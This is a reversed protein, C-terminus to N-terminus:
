TKLHLNLSEIIGDGIEQAVRPDSYLGGNLNVTIQSGSGGSGIRHYPIVQEGGHAQILQPSGIPGPVTGGLAFSGAVDDSGFGLASGAKKALNKLADYAKGILDVVYQVKNAISDFVSAVTDRLYNTVVEFAPKLATFISQLWTFFGVAREIKATIVDGIIQGFFAGVQILDDFMEKVLQLIPTFIKAMQEVLFSIANWLGLFVAGLAEIVPMLLNTFMLWLEKAAAWLQKISLWTEDLGGGLYILGAALGAVAAIVLGVPSILLTFGAIVPTLLLGLTGVVAVLGAIAAAAIGIKAALEPNKEVWAQVKAVIPGVIDLMKEMVPLLAEGIADKTNQLSASLQQYREATSLTARGTEEIEQRGQKVVKSIIAQKQEAATLENTAKGISKAYQEYAEGVKLTIGLNDLIMPSGRGLGTVLDDFAQKTDLGMAKGKKRAIEMITTFDDMNKTVGLAMAKNSSLLLDQSSITGASAEVMANKVAEANLGMSGTMREFETQLQQTKAGSRAFNDMGYTLAAFAATGYNRMNKFAPELSKLNKQVGSFAKSTKDQADLIIKYTSSQNM